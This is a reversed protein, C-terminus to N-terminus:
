KRLGKLREEEETERMSDLDVDLEYAADHLEQDLIKSDLCHENSSLPYGSNHYSFKDNAFAFLLSQYNKKGRNWSSPVMLFIWTAVNFLNFLVRVRSAVWGLDVSVLYGLMAAALIVMFTTVELGKFIQPKAHLDQPVNYM